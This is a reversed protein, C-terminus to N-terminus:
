LKIIESFLSENPQNDLCIIFRSLDKCILMKVLHLEVLVSTFNYIHLNTYM